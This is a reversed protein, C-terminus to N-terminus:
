KLLKKIYSEVDCGTIIEAEPYHFKYKVIDEAIRADIEEEDEDEHNIDEDYLDKVIITKVNKLNPNFYEAIYTEAEVDNAAAFEDYCVKVKLPFDYNNEVFVVKSNNINVQENTQITIADASTITCASRAVVSKYHKQLTINTNVTINEIDQSEDYKPDNIILHFKNKILTVSNPAFKNNFLRIAEKKYTEEGIASVIYKCFNDTIKNLGSKEFVYDIFAYSTTDSALSVKSVVYEPLYFEKKTTIDRVLTMTDPYDTATRM